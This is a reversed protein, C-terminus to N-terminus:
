NRYCRTTPENSDIRVSTLGRGTLLVQLYGLLLRMCLLKCGAENSRSSVHM